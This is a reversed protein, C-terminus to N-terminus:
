LFKRTVWDCINSIVIKRTSILKIQNNSHLFEIITGISIKDDDSLTFLKNLINLAMEKKDVKKLKNQYVENEICECCLLVLQPDLKFNEINPIENLKEIISNTIHSQLQTKKLDHKLSILNLTKM